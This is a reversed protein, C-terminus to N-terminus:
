FCIMFIKLSSVQYYIFFFYWDLECCEIDLMRTQEVGDANIRRQNLEVNKRLHNVAIGMDTLVAKGGALHAAMGPLGCGAGLELARMGRFLDENSLIWHAFVISGAWIIGSHDQIYKSYCMHSTLVFRSTHLMAVRFRNEIAKLTYSKVFISHVSIEANKKDGTTGNLEKARKKEEELLLQARHITAKAKEHFEEHDSATKAEISFSFTRYWTNEDIDAM